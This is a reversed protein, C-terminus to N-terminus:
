SSPITISFSTITVTGGASTTLQNLTLNGGGGTVTVDGDLRLTDDGNRLRFWGAVGTANASTDQWTGNKTLVGSSPDSFADAPLTIQVLLTGTTSLDASAPQTSAYIELTDSDFATGISTAVHNRLGTSIRITM